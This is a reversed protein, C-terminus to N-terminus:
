NAFSMRSQARMARTWTEFLRRARNLFYTFFLCPFHKTRLFKDESIRPAGIFFGCRFQPGLSECGVMAQVQLMGCGVRHEQSPEFFVAALLCLVFFASSNQLSNGSLRIECDFHPFSCFFTIIAQRELMRVTCCCACRPGGCQPPRLPWGWCYM